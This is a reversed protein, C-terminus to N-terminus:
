RVNQRYETVRRLAEIPRDNALLKEAEERIDGDLLGRDAFEDVLREAEREYDRDPEGRVRVHKTM